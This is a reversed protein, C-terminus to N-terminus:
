AAELDAQSKDERKEKLLNEFKEQVEEPEIENGDVFLLIPAFPMGSIAQEAVQDVSITSRGLYSTTNFHIDIFTRYHLESCVITDGSEVDFNFDYKKGVHSLARLIHNALDKDSLEVRLRLLAFDDIDSFHDLSNLKVGYRLAEVIYKGKEIEKAHKQVLEHNWIGLRELDEQTGIYIAAHGWYGPIFNDTLRFPTKELLIDMPKINNEVTSLFSQNHHLYGHRKQFGGVINGFLKSGVYVVSNAMYRLFDYKAKASIKLRTIFLLFFDKKLDNTDPNKFHFYL